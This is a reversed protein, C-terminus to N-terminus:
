RGRRHAMSSGRAASRSSARRSGLWAAISSGLLTPTPALLAASANAMSQIRGLAADDSPSASRWQSAAVSATVIAAVTTVGSLAGLTIATVRGPRPSDARATWAFTAVPVSAAAAVSLAASTPLLGRPRTWRAACLTDCAQEVRLSAAALGTATVAAVAGLAVTAAPWRQPDRTAVGTDTPAENRRPTLFVDAAEAHPQTPGHPELAERDRLPAEPQPALSQARRLLSERRAAFFAASDEPLKAVETYTAIDEAAAELLLRQTRRAPTSPDDDLADAMDARIQARAIYATSLGPEAAIAASAEAEAQELLGQERLSQARALHESGTAALPGPPAETALPAGDDPQVNPEAAIDTEPALSGFAIALALTQWGVV